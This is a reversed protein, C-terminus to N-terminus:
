PCSLAAFLRSHLKCQLELIWDRLQVDKTLLLEAFALFVQESCDLKKLCVHLQPMNVHLYESVKLHKEDESLSTDGWPPRANWGTDAM